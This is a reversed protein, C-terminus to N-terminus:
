LVDGRSRKWTWGIVYGGIAGGLAALWHVFHPRAILTAEAVLYTGITMGATWLLEIIAMGQSKDRSKDHASAPKIIRYKSM